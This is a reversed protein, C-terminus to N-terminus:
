AAQVGKNSHSLALALDDIGKGMVSPWSRVAFRVGADRLDAMLKELAWRVNVNTRWDADYAVVARKGPFRGKFADAFAEGWQTVGGAGIFPLGLLGAAVDSKLAGETLLIDPSQTILEPRAFHLPPSLKTGGPFKPGGHEFTAAPDTSLWLYKSKGLMVDLRYSLGVIRGKLDRYPVFYGPLCGVLRPRGGRFHFGPVGALGLDALQRVLGEAQEKTPTDRYLNREITARTLGRALLSELRAESLTLRSLLAGYVLSRHDASAPSLSPAPKPPPSPKPARARVFDDRTVLVHLWTGESSPKDSAVKACWALEKDPRYSCPWSHGECVLCPTRKSARVPKSM